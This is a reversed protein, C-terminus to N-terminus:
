GNIDRWGRTIADTMRAVRTMEKVDHVRIIDAGGAISLAVAAATGELRQEVPLGLVRGIASKRSVGIMVPLNLCGLEKLRRILELNQETNKGFGFGPDLIIRDRTIGARFALQLSEEFYTIIDGILDNYGTHPQNHMLAVPVRYAAALEAMAPDLRLAGQDNLM